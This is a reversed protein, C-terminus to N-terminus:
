TQLGKNRSKSPPHGFRNKYAHSLMNASSFGTKAAIIDLNYQTTELLKNVAAFREDILQDRVSRNLITRFRLRLLSPSVKLHKAVDSATIGKTANESIYTLAERIMFGAPPVKQTSAREIIGMPPVLIQPRTKKKGKMLRDLEEAARRALEVHNPHLSSLTPRVGNCVIEDNDVGLVAIQAPVDIDMMRCAELIRTGTVDNTALIAAPKVLEKLWTEMQSRNGRFTKCPISHEALEIRFGRQRYTSWWSKTEDPVYAFTRFNGKTRLFAAAKRGIAIEDNHLVSINPADPPPLQPPFNNLVLPINAKILEKYGPTVMNFGTLIGDTGDRLANRIAEPTIEYPNGLMHVNWDHGENIFKFVGIIFERAAVNNASYAVLVKKM